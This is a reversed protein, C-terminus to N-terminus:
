GPLASSDPLGLSEGIEAEESSPVCLRSGLGAKKWSNQFDFEPGLIAQMTLMKSYRGLGTGKQSLTVCVYDVTVKFKLSLWRLMTINYNCVPALMALVCM